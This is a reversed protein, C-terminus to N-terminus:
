EHELEQLLRNVTAMNGRPDAANRDSFQGRRGGSDQARILWRSLFGPMGGYTKRKARHNTVWVRAARMEALVDLDPFAECFEALKAATLPWETPGKGVVPFVMVPKPEDPSPPESAPSAPESCYNSRGTKGEKRRPLVETPLEKKEQTRESNVQQESATRESNVRQESKRSRYQYTAYNCITVTTWKSNAEIQICGMEPSALAMMGRYWKSPSVGLEEAARHRGTVFQGADIMQGRFRKPRFNAKLLCWIFLKLLWEDHFVPHELLSRYLRLWDRGM